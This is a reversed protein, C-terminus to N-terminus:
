TINKTILNALKASKDEDGLTGVRIKIETSKGDLDSLTIYVKESGLNAVVYAKKSSYTQSDLKYDNNTQIAKITANYVTRIDKPVEIIYYGNIYYVAGGAVIATGILLATVVCSNLMTTVFLALCLFKLKKM